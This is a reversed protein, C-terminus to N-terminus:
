VDESEIAAGRLGQSFFRFWVEEEEFKDPDGFGHSSGVSFISAVKATFELVSGALGHSDPTAEVLSARPWPPDKYALEDIYPRPLKPEPM